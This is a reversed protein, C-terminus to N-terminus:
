LMQEAMTKLVKGKKKKKQCKGICFSNPHPDGVVQLAHYFRMPLNQWLFSLNASFISAFPTTLQRVSTSISLHVLSPSLNMWNQLLDQTRTKCKFYKLDKWCLPSTKAWLLRTSVELQFSPSSSMLTNFMASSYVSLSVWFNAECSAWQHWHFIIHDRRIMGASCHSFLPQQETQETYGNLIMQLLVGNWWWFIM